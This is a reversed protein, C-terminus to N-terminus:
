DGRKQKKFAAIFKKLIRLSTRDMGTFQIGSEFRGDKNTRCHVVKGQVDVLDDEVGITLSVIFRTELPIHTELLIGGETVDLTRGMAQKVVENNRDICVYSVLNLSNIRDHRRRERKAVYIGRGARAIKGQKSARALINRVKRDEFGSRKILAPVDVGQKSRKIMNVVRDTASLTLSKKANAPKKARAKTERKPRIRAERKRTAKARELKDIEKMIKDTKRQLVELKRSLVRLDKKLNKM